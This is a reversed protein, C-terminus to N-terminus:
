GISKSYKKKIRKRGGRSLHRRSHSLNRMSSRLLTTMLIYKLRIRHTLRLRNCIYHCKHSREELLTNLHPRHQDGVAKTPPTTLSIRNITVMILEMNIIISNITPMILIQIPLQKKLIKKLPKKHLRKLSSVNSVCIKSQGKNNRKAFNSKGSKEIKRAVTLVPFVTWNKRTPYRLSMIAHM